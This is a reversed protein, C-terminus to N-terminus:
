SPLLSGLVSSALPALIAVGATFSEAPGVGLKLLSELKAREELAKVADDGEVAHDEVLRHGLALLRTYTPAYVLALLVSFLMGYGLVSEIPFDAPNGHETRYSMVANRLAGSSLIAAAIM